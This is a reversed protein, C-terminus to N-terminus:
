SMGMVLTIRVKFFLYVYGSSLYGFPPPLLGNQQLATYRVYYHLFKIYQTPQRPSIRLGQQCVNDPCDIDRSSFFTRSDVGFNRVRVHRRIHM